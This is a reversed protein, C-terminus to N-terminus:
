SVSIDRRGFYLMSMFLRELSVAVLVISGTADVKGVLLIDAFNYYHVISILGMFEYDSIMLSISEFIFMWVIIAIM